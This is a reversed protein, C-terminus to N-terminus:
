AEKKEDPDALFATFGHEVDWSIDVRYGYRERANEGELVVCADLYEGVTMTGKDLLLQFRLATAGRKPNKDVVARIVEADAFLRKTMPAGSPRKQNNRVPRTLNTNSATLDAPHALVLGPGVVIARKPDIKGLATVITLNQDDLARQTRRTAAERDAFKKVKNEGAANYVAAMQILTLSAVSVFSHSIKTPM